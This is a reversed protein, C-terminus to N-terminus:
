LALCKRKLSVVSISEILGRYGGIKPPKKFRPSMGWGGMLSFDRQVGKDLTMALLLLSSAIRSTTTNYQLM